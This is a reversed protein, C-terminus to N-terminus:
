RRVFPKDCLPCVRVSSQNFERSCDACVRAGCCHLDYMKDTTGTCHRCGGPKASFKHECDGCRFAHSGLNVAVKLATLGFLIGAVVPHGGAMMQKGLPVGSGSVKNSHVKSGRCKPCRM